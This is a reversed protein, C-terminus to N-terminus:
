QLLITRHLSKYISPENNVSKFSAENAGNSAQHFVPGPFIASPAQLHNVPLYNDFLVARGNPLCRVPQQAIVRIGSVTELFSENRSKIEAPTM